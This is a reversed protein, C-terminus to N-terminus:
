NHRIEADISLFDKRRVKLKVFFSARRVVSVMARGLLWLLLCMSMKADRLVVAATIFSPQCCVLWACRCVLFVM